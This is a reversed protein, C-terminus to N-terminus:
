LATTASRKWGPWPTIRPLPIRCFWVTEKGLLPSTLGINESVGFLRFSISAEPNTVPIIEANLEFADNDSFYTFNGRIELMNVLDAYGQMHSRIGSPFAEASFHPFLDFDYSVVTGSEEAFTYSVTGFIIVLATLIGLLRKMNM